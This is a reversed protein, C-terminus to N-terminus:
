IHLAQVDVADLTEPQRDADTKQNQKERDNSYGGHDVLWTSLM